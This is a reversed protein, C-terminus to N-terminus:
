QKEKSPKHKTPLINKSLTTIYINTPLPKIKLKIKYAIATPNRTAKALKNIRKM